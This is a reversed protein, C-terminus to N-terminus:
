GVISYVFVALIGAIFSSVLNVINNSFWKIGGVHIGPTDCHIKHHSIVGCVPCRYKEEAFYGLLSDVFTGIFGSLFISIVLLFPSKVPYLFPLIISSIFAGGLSAVTGLPTIGGPTGPKIKKWPKIILRTNNSLMGIESGMTDATKMSLAGWAVILYIFNGSVSFLVSFIAPIAGNALVQTGGRAGKSPQAEGILSKKSYGIKTAFGAVLHFLIMPALVLWGTSLAASLGVILGAILGFINVLKLLISLLGLLLVTIVALLIPFSLLRSIIVNAFFLIDFFTM